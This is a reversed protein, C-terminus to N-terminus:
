DSTEDRGTPTPAVVRGWRRGLATVPVGSTEGCVRRGYGWVPSGRRHATGRGFRGRQLRSGDLENDLEGRGDFILRFHPSRLADSEVRAGGM